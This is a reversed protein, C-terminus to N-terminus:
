RTGSIAELVRDAVEGPGVGETSVAHEALAYTERRRDLLTRASGVPDDRDLMPRTELDGELRAVVTEPRVRLWVRVADPWRDRLEPRDMWGGGAAVVTGRGGSGADLSRTARAELRRFAAEGERRFIEPVPRGAIREVEEDLDVFRYGLRSALRRGVSSKGAAMFGVLVIRRPPGGHAAPAAEGAGSAGEGADPGTM